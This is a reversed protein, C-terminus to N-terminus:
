KATMQYSVPVVVSRWQGYLGAYYISGDTYVSSCHDSPYCPEEVLSWTLGSDQSYQLLVPSDYSFM